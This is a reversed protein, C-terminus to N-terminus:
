KRNRWTIEGERCRLVVNTIAIRVVYEIGIVEEGRHIPTKSEVTAELQVDAGGVRMLGALWVPDGPSM